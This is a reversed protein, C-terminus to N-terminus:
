EYRIGAAVSQRMAVRAPFIGAALAAGLAILVARALLDYSPEWQITWGFSQKNIVRVLLLSLCLGGVLGLLAGLLGVCASEWLLVLAVQVRSAGIARLTALERRRELVSILLANVIGLVAIVVTIFELARTVSFTRDFIRLIEAKLDANRIIVVDGERSLRERIADRVGEPRAEPALYVPYVTAAEDQWWRRYVTLDMVVKGGDTAYDYFVAAIRFAKPGQPTPLTVLEGARWGMANALAEAVLIGDHEVAWPLVSASDGTLLIYRSRAAHLRLDRAVLTSPRGQLDLRIQRYQDVAQVGPIAGLMARWSGPLRNSMAGGHDDHLWSSSAVVLDAVVTQNIWVDVTQRFSSIMTGVGVMLAVGAMLASITVGNRIPARLVQEIALRMLTWTRWGRMSGFPHLRILRGSLHLLPPAWCALGILLVFASLYGFLPLHRIPNLFALGLAALLCLGGAWALRRLRDRTQAEYAVPLLARATALHAASLSPSVAGVLAVGAGLMAARLIMRMSLRAGSWSEQLSVYVYLDSVTRAMMTVIGRALALGLGAGLVGGALGMVVASGVFVLCVATRTMGLARLMGIARRRAMVAYSVTHYVLLVSILLGVASLAGLNLQFARTMREVQEARRAPRAVTVPLPLLRQLEAEVDAVPRDPVTVVDIRDLRGIMGFRVQAAAIDMIALDDWMSAREAHHDLVGRVMLRHPFAGVRIDLPQGEAVGLERALRQGLFIADDALLTEVRMSEGPSTRVRVGKLEAVEILDLGLIGFTTGEPHPLASRAAVRLVPSASEVAPHERVARILTEDLGLEGNVVELTARGAVDHISERFSQFVQTNAENIAMIAAVGVAIGCVTLATRAPRELLLRMALRVIVTPGRNM